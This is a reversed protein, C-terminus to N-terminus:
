VKQFVTNFSQMDGHSKSRIVAVYRQNIKFCLWKQKTGLYELALKWANNITSQVKVACTSYESGNVSPRECDYFLYPKKRKKLWRYLVLLSIPRPHYKGIPRLSLILLAGSTVIKIVMKNMFWHISKKMLSIEQM